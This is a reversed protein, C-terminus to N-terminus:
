RRNSVLHRTPDFLRAANFASSTPPPLWADVNAPRGFLYGQGLVVDLDILAQREEETEVGEAIVWGSTAQAFHHLGVILAQRTLDGNVGAVLSADIKVFDPHLQVIHTFNAIGAGADDVAIRVDPGLLAVASLVAQYDDIADHETIELVIPRTRKKLLGALVDGHLIMPASVNLGLWPGTPLGQSAEITRELTAAELEIGFGAAGAEAFVHDPPRGDRFRTLAEYGIAFGTTLYVIPQFVPDFAGDRIVALIRDQSARLQDRTALPGALLGRAAAAFEIVAPLQDKMRRAAGEDLSGVTVLGIPGDTGGIPASATGRVGIWGGAVADAGSRDDGNSELAHGGPATALPEAWAERAARERLYAAREAPLTQGVTLAYGRPATSALVRVDGSAEFSLVTAIDVGALEVLADTVDQSTEEPTARQELRALAHAFAVRERMTLDLSAQIERLHSVHRGVCVFSSVRGQADRVPAITVEERYDVGDPRRFAWEGSWSRGSRLRSALRRHITTSGAERMFAWLDRGLLDGVPYGSSATFAPNAYVVRAAADTVIITEAAQDIAGILRTQTAEAERRATVNEGVSSVAVVKGDDDFIPSSTWSILIGEGSRTLWTTEIRDITSGAGTDSLYRARRADPEDEPALWVFADAGVLDDESWGTAALHYRNAFLMRGERDLILAHLAVGDLADRFRRESVELAASVEMRATVDRAVGEISVGAAADVIRTNLQETWVISGDKRTWRVVTPESFLSGDALQAAVVPRDDPHVLGTAVASNGVLEEPTYGTLTTVSPSVYEFAWDPATRYKYIVDRSREALLRFREESAALASQSALYASIERGTLAVGDGLRVVRLDLALRVHRGDSLSDEYILHDQVYPEGTTVVGCYAEFLGNTRHAPLRVLLRGGMAEKGTLGFLRSLPENAFTLEFDEIAGAADRIATLIAFPDLMSEISMRFRNEIEARAAAVARRDASDRHREIAHRVTRELLAFDLSARDIYDAAGRAMAERGAGPGAGSEADGTLMVIPALDDIDRAAVLLDLGSRSGLHDALLAADFRGSALEELGAECTPAREVTWATASDAVLREVLNSSADDDDILLLRLNTSIM